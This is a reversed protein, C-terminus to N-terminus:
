ENAVRWREIIQAYKGPMVEGLIYGHTRGDLTITVIRLGMTVQAGTVPDTWPTSM